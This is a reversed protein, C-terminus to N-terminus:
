FLPSLALKKKVKQFDTGEPALCLDFTQREGKFYQEMQTAAELLVGGHQLLWTNKSMHIFFSVSCQLWGKTFRASRGLFSKDGSSMPQGPLKFACRGWWHGCYNCRWCAVEVFHLLAKRQQASRKNFAADKAGYILKRRWEFHGMLM